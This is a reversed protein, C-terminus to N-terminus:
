LLHVYAASEEQKIGTVEYKNQILNQLNEVSIGNLSRVKITFIQEYHDVTVAANSGIPNGNVEIMKM